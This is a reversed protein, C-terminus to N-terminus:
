ASLGTLRAYTRKPGRGCRERFWCWTAGVGGLINGAREICQQGISEREIQLGLVKVPVDAPWMKAIVVEQEVFLGVLNERHGIDKGLTYAFDAADGQTRDTVDRTMLADGVIICRVDIG